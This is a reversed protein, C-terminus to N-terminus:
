LYSLIYRGNVAGVAKGRVEELAERHALLDIMGSADRSHYLELTRLLNFLSICVSWRKCRVLRKSLVPKM